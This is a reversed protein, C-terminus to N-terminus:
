RDVCVTIKAHGKWQAEIGGDDKSFRLVLFVPCKWVNCLHRGGFTVGDGIKMIENLTWFIFLNSNFLASLYLHISTHPHTPILYWMLWSSFLQHKVWIPVSAAGGVHMETFGKLIFDDYSAIIDFCFILAPRSKNIQTIKVIYMICWGINVNILSLLKVHLHFNNPFISPFM